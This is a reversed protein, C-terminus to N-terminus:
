RTIANCPARWHGPQNTYMECVTCLPGRSDSTAEPAAVGTPHATSSADTREMWISDKLPPPIVANSKRRAASAIRASIRAEETLAALLTSSDVLATDWVMVGGGIEDSTYTRGGVENEQMYLMCGNPLMGLNWTSRKM